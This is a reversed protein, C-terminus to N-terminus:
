QIVIRRVDKRNGDTVSLMYVGTQVNNLQIDQNFTAGGQFKNDYISRGRMDYVSVSIEDSANNDFQVTFTGNNPNPYVKFGDFGFQQSALTVEQTCVVIAWNNIQGTDANWFDRATLVWNGTASLGNFNNLTQSPKYTGVTPEACVITTGSDDFTVNIDNQGACERNWVFRTLNNPHKIGIELDNIWTHSANVLVNVDSVNGVLPVNITSTVLAGATNSGVGDPIVLATSNTYTQCTTVINYGIAFSQSNVAYFPSGTPEILLRCNIHPTSPATIVASGNNPINSALTVPFTVGGDTSLKINVNEAGPLLNSNNVSWTITQASNTNWSIGATNQSTLAFPGVVNDFEVIVDDSENSAGGAKNDRVTFRFTLNRSVSPVKEWQAGQVGNQVVSTFNPFYRTPNTTPTLSRFMAGSTNTPNPFATAASTASNMQEWCYTLADGPNADTGVGTLYFATGIPILVNAGADATPSANAITTNTQCTKTKINNTIQQISAAHFYADSNLQVDTSGTIGAYGMITTGSGPEINVGSGEVAHSFTHNGGFQHGMEHAVYDIDFTDGQPIGDAPSTIGRGKNALCICGICGANGGGGTAGFLHGIDYNALGIVSNLTNQLETNWNGMSSSPSYPDTSASTYIVLNNNAVIVMNSNFDNLFVGNVRTMTAAIAANAGAVTGGHFVTYEGTVSIALKFTRKINDDANNLISNDNLLRGGFQIGEDETLCTFASKGKTSKAKNFVLYQTHDNSYPDIITTGKGSFILGSLGKQPSVSFYIKNSPTDLSQAVYSRIEPYLAQMAPEFVPNEFVQYKEITGDFGPFTVQVPSIGVYNDVLPANVLQTRFAEFNLQFVKFESPYNVRTVKDESKVRAESSLSWLSNTQAFTTISALVFVMFLVTKKM